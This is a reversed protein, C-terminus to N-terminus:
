VPKSIGVRDHKLPIASTSQTTARLFGTEWRLFQKEYWTPIEAVGSSAICDALGFGDIIADNAGEGGLIPEAHIADGIFFVGKRALAQLDPLHVLGARMLWHLVRDQRIKEVDFADKFPPKLDSLASIEDYLDNPISTAEANSRNPRHLPDHPGRAPRSYTWSMDVFDATRVNISVNMVADERRTEQVNSRKMFPAYVDDFMARGVRRRGNYAVIPLVDLATGPLLCQRARSHPGDASIVYGSEVRQGNQFLLLTGSPTQEVEEIAHEWKIDLGERLLQELRGRHARFSHSKAAAPNIVTQPNIDGSGGVAGDVAVRRRFTTEDLNLVGLLPRYSSAHLTIGYHHRPASSMKEYLVSPIGHNRLCRALALGGIGAGVISIPPQPM